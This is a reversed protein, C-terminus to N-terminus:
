TKRDEFVINKDLDIGLAVGEERGLSFDSDISGHNPPNVAVHVDGFAAGVLAGIHGASRAPYTQPSSAQDVCRKKLRSLLGYGDGM